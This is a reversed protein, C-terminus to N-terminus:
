TTLTEPWAGLGWGTLKDTDAGWVFLPAGDPAIAYHDISVGSPKLPIYGGVLLARTVADPRTGTIAVTMTMDQNDQIVVSMGTEGFVAEWIDYAGDTSGDWVNAAIKGRLLTRYHEDPLAVMGTTPDYPGKWTGQQWGVGDEGWAFYVGTLPTDLYRSRGVWEGVQDLQVGVGDDLDFGARIDELVRQLKVLPKILATCLGMFRPQDRYLSTIIGLYTDLSSKAM